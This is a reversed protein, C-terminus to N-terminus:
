SLGHRSPFEFMPARIMRKFNNYLTQCAYRAQLIAESRIVREVESDPKPRRMTVTGGGALRRIFSAILSFLATFPNTDNENRTEPQKEEVGLAENIASLVEDVNAAMRSAVAAILDRLEDRAIERMLITLEEDTLAYSSLNITARGRYVFSGPAVAKPATRLNFEVVVVPKAVRKTTRLFMRPLEGRRVREELPFAGQALLALESVASDFVTVLAAGPSANQELERAQRLYAAAWRAYLNLKEVDVRLQNRALDFQVRLEREAHGLWQNFEELRGRLLVSRWGDSSSSEGPSQAGLLEGLDNPSLQYRSHGIANMRDLWIQKLALLAAEKEHGTGSQYNQALGLARRHLKIESLQGLVSRLLGQAAAQLRQWDDQAQMKRRTMEGFLGSGPSAAFNDAIKTVQWGGRKWWDLIFFYLGELSEEISDYVILHQEVPARLGLLDFPNSVDSDQSQHSEKLRAVEAARLYTLDDVKDQTVRKVQARATPDCYIDPNIAAILRQIDITM